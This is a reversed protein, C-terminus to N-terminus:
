DISMVAEAWHEDKDELEKDRGEELLSDTKLDPTRSMGGEKYMLLERAIEPTEHVINIDLEQLSLRGSDNSATTKGEERNEAKLSQSAELNRKLKGSLGSRHNSVAIALSPVEKSEEYVKETRVERSTGSKKKYWVKDAVQTSEKAFGGNGKNEEQVSEEVVNLGAFRSGMNIENGGDAANGRKESQPFRRPRRRYQVKSWEGFIFCEVIGDAGKEKGCGGDEAGKREKCERETHGYMGCCFCLLHLGEYTIPREKNGIIYLPLLPKRLDVQVGVRAYGGRSQLSTTMDVKVTRGIENGMAELISEDYYELPLDPFRIWILVDEIAEIKPDFNLKWDRVTLYSDSIMWPGGLLALEYDDMTSFNVVFFDNSLDVVSVVGSRAWMKQIRQEM